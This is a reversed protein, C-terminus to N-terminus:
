DDLRQLRRTENLLQPTDSAAVCDGTHAGSYVVRELLLPFSHPSNNELFGRVYAVAAINGLRKEVLYGSHPCSDRHWKDHKLWLKLDIDGDGTLIPEGTQDFALLEPFPHPPASGERICNCHVSADLGMTLLNQVFSWSCAVDNALQYRGHWSKEPVLSQYHNIADLERFGGGAVGVLTSNLKSQKRDRRTLRRVHL